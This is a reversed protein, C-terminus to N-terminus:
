QNLYYEIIASPNILSGTTPPPLPQQWPLGLPTIACGASPSAFGSAKFGVACNQFKQATAEAGAQYFVQGPRMWIPSNPGHPNKAPQTAATARVAFDVATGENRNPFNNVALRHCAACSLGADGLANGVQISWSRDNAYDKGVYRLPSTLNSYGDAQNPMAHPGTRLQAIYNSRIFGGNDHCGTCGINHTNSPNIWHPTNDAWVANQGAAPSPINSGPLIGLAQFFCVAGNAKNYEIIAIDSFNPDNIQRGVKRCHAVAVADASRGALVQFRSGPDCQRNLSNPADCASGAPTIGQGPVEVGNSCSFTAPLKIGIAQECELAYDKLADGTSFDRLQPRRQIELLRQYLVSNLAAEPMDQARVTPAEILFSLCFGAVLATSLTKSAMNSRQGREALAPKAIILSVGADAEPAAPDFKRNETEIQLNFLGDPRILELTLCDNPCNM